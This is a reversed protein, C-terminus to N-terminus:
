DHWDSTKRFIIEAKAVKNQQDLTLRLDECAIPDINSGFIQELEYNLESTNKSNNYDDGLLDIVEASSKGILINNVVLYKAMRPRNEWRYEASSFEANGQIGLWKQKEFPVPQIWKRREEINERCSLFLISCVSLLIVSAIQKLM